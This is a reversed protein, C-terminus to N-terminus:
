EGLTLRKAMDLLDAVDSEPLGHEALTARADRVIVRAAGERRERNLAHRLAHAAEGMVSQAKMKMPVNAQDAWEEHADCVKRALGVIDPEDETTLAGGQPRPRHGALAFAL